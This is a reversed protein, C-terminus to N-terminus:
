GNTTVVQELKALTTEMARRMKAPTRGIRHLPWGRESTADWTERVLTGGDVHELEYRWVRGGIPGRDKIVGRVEPKPAWAIRRDEEFEIVTNVMRYRFGLKMAMGFRAGLSLRPPGDIDAARVMGSGDIEPHRRPNALVDFIRPAPVAITREVSVVRDSSSQGHQPSM